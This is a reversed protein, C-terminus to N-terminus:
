TRVGLIVGQIDGSRFYLSEDHNSVEINNISSLLRAYKLAITVGIIGISAWREYGNGYGLCEYCDDGVGTAKEKGHGDCTKCECEYSNHENDFSVNGEGECEKCETLTLRGTGRCAECYKAEPLIFDSPLRSFTLGDTDLFKSMAKKLSDEIDPYSAKEPISIVANGNCAFTRGNFNFPTKLYERSDNKACWKIMDM